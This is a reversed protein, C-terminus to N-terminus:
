LDRLKKRARHLANDVSKQSLGTKGAIEERSCGSLHFGLVQREMPTLSEEMRRQLAGFRERLEVLAQPSEEGPQAVLDELPLSENLPRNGSNGQKRAASVMRRYVCAGAYTSFSAGGQPRYSVAAAYLGLFGEQWLDEQELACVGLFARAKGRIMGLHRSCLQAFAEPDGERVLAALQEDSLEQYRQAM